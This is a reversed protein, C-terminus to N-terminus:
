DATLAKPLCELDIDDHYLAYLNGGKGEIHGLYNLFGRGEHQYTYKKIIAFEGTKKRRVVTGLPYIDAEKIM